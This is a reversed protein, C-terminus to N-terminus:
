RGSKFLEDDTDYHTWLNAFNWNHNVYGPPDLLCKLVWKHSPVGLEVLLDHLAYRASADGVHGALGLDKVIEPLVIKM